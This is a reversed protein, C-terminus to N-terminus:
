ATEKVIATLSIIGHSHLGDPDRMFRSSAVYLDAVELGSLDWRADVLAARIAAAIQKSTVLGSEAVWIHLDLFADHRRRAIDGAPSTMGEGIVIRPFIAPVGNADRVNDAPVLAVLASSAVLRARVATQLVLSPEM